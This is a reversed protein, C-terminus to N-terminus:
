LGLSRLINEIILDGVNFRIWIYPIIWIAFIIFITVVIIVTLVSIVVNKFIEDLMELDLRM